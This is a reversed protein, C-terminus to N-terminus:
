LSAEQAIIRQMEMLDGYAKNLDDYSVYDFYGEINEEFDRATKAIEHDEGFFGEFVASFSPAEGLKSEKIMGVSVLHSLFVDIAVEIEERDVASPGSIEEYDDYQEEDDENQAESKKEQPSARSPFFEIEFNAKLENLGESIAELVNPRLHKVKHLKRRKV